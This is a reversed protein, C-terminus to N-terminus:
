ASSCDSPQNIPSPRRPVRTASPMGRGFRSWRARVSRSDISFEYRRQQMSAKRALFNRLRQRGEVVTRLAEARSSVLPGEVARTACAGSLIVCRVSREAHCTPSPSIRVGSLSIVEARKGLSHM